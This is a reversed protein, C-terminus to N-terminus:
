RMVAIRSPSQHPVPRIMNEKTFAQRMKRFAKHGAGGRIIAPRKLGIFSKEFEDMTLASPDVQAGSNPPLILNGGQNM